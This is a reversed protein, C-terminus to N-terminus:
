LVPMRLGHRSAEEELITLSTVMFTCTGDGNLMLTQHPDYQNECAVYGRQHSVFLRAGCGPCIGSELERIRQEVDAKTLV